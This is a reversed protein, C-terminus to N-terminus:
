YPYVEQTVPRQWGTDKEITETMHPNSLVLFHDQTSAIRELGAQVEPDRVVVQDAPQIV